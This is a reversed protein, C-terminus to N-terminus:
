APLYLKYAVENIKAIIQYPGYYKIALKHNARRAVLTQIYPQLKLYVSDGVSFTRPSRHRDAQAKMYQQARNLHQQLLDQIVTREDLWSHLAPVTCECTPTIGWHRPEHGFM